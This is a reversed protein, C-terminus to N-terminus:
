IKIIKFRIASGNEAILEIFYFGSRGNLKTNIETVEEYKDVMIRQGLQNYVTLKVFSIEQDFNINLVDTVPNPYISLGWDLESVSVGSTDEVVPASDEQTLKYIFADRNGLSSALMEGAEMDGWITDQFTGTTYVNYNEDVGIGTLVDGITSGISTAWRFNGLEDWKTIFVDEFGNSGIGFGLNPHPNFDASSNFIGGIYVNSSDDVAISSGQQFGFGKIQKAWAYDGEWNLKCVFGDREFMSQAELLGYGDESPDFDAEGQFFGTLYISNADDIVLDTVLDLRLGGMQKAWVFDGNGELKLVFIDSGMYGATFEYIGSGANFDVTDFFGGAAYLRNNNDTALSIDVTELNNGSYQNVWLFDGQPDLKCIFLDGETGTSIRNEIDNSPDFDTTGLFLGAVYVNGINDTTVARVYAISDGTFQKVWQLEGDSDLKSVFGDKVGLSQRTDSSNSPDFDVSNQFMGGIILNNSEDITLDLVDQDGEGGYQHVWQFNGATDFKTVYGDFAGASIFSNVDTSDPDFDTSGMFAGCTYFSGLGDFEIANSTQDNLGGIPAFWDKVPYQAFSNSFCFVAIFLLHIIRSNFHNM